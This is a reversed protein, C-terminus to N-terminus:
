LLMASGYTTLIGLFGYFAMIRWSVLQRLRLLKFANSFVYFFAVLIIAQKLDIVLAAFPNLIAASGFGTICAIVAAM